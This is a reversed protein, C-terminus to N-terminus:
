KKLGGKHKCNYLVTALKPYKYLIIMKLIRSKKESGYLKVINSIKIKDDNKLTKIINYYNEIENYKKHNKDLNKYLCEFQSYKFDIMYKRYEDFDNFNRNDAGITNNEHQRYLQLAEDLYYIQGYDCANIGIWWDYIMVDDEPFPISKDLVKKEVLMSCGSIVNEVRLLTYDHYKCCKKQMNNKKHFSDDIINKEKDILAMDCFVLTANKKNKYLLMKEVKEPYWIDDQDSFMCISSSAYSCLKSFNKIFGVNKKNIYIKVREDLQEYKKLIKQTNDTSADDSIILNFNSYTQSLISQIQEDIYKEGNYTAMLIDVKENM